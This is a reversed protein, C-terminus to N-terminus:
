RNVSVGQQERKMRLGVVLAIGIGVLVVIECVVVYPVIWKRSIAANAGWLSVPQILLDITDLLGSARGLISEQILLSMLTRMAAALYGMFVGIVLLGMGVAWVNKQVVLVFGIGLLVHTWVLVMFSRPRVFGSVFSGIMLGVGWLPMTLGFVNAEAQVWEVLVYPVLVDLMGTTTVASVLNLVAFLYLSSEKVVASFADKLQFDVSLKGAVKQGVDPIRLFQLVSVGYLVTILAWLEGAELFKMALTGILPIILFLAQGITSLFSIGVHLLDDTLLKRPLVGAAIAAIGGTVGFVVGLAGIGLEDGLMWIAGAAVFTRVLDSLLLAKRPGVADVYVGGVFSGIALGITFCTFYLTLWYNGQAEQLVQWSLVIPILNTSIRSTTRAMAYRALLPHRLVERWQGFVERAKGGLGM